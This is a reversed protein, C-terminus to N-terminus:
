RGKALEVQDVAPIPGALSREAAYKAGEFHPLRRRDSLCRKTDVVYIDTAIVKEARCNWDPHEITVVYVFGDRAAFSRGTEFDVRVGARRGGSEWHSIPAGEKTTCRSAVLM